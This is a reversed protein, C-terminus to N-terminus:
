SSAPEGSESGAGAEGEVAEEAGEEPQELVQSRAGHAVAIATEPDSDAVVGDPLPLDAVRLIEGIAMSSIDLELVTPILGPRASVSITFLQQDVAGDAHRVEVADGVITVPVEVTVMEDRRTIQFDVHQVTGRVPHRQFSRALVLFRDSGTDIELLQNTGSEGTLAVRLAPGDVAISLAESGHGYIVAPIKGERRLRRTARSGTPRGVEAHLTIEPM